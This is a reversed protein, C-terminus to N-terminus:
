DNALKGDIANQILEITEKCGYISIFSGIRPGEKQGLLIEYLCSFWEKLENFNNNKGTEYVENQILQHNTVDKIKEIRKILDQLATIERQTPKRYKKHPHVFDKYYKLAKTILINLYNDKISNKSNKIYKEIFGWLIDPSSANCVSALNLIISYSIIYNSKPLEGNHIHWVPNKIKEKIEQKKISDLFRYYEDV